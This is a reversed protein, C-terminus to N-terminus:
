NSWNVKSKQAKRDTCSLMYSWNISSQLPKWSNRKRIEIQDFSCLIEFINVPSVIELFKDDKDKFPHSVLCPWPTRLVSKSFLYSFFKTPRNMFSSSFNLLNMQLSLLFDRLIQIKKGLFKIWCLYTVYTNLETNNVSMLILLYCFIETFLTKFNASIYRPIIFLSPIVDRM